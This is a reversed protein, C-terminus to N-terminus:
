KRELSALRFLSRPTTLTNDVFFETEWPQDPLYQGGGVAPPASPAGTKARPTRRRPISPARESHGRDRRASTDAVAPRPRRALPAAASEAVAALRPLTPAAQADVHLALPATAGLAVVVAVRTFRATATM